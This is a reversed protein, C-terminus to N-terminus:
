RGGAGGSRKWWSRIVSEVVHAYSDGQRLLALLAAREQDDWDAMHERYPWGTVNDEITHM